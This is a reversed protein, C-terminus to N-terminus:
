KSEFKRALILSPIKLGDNLHAAVIIWFIFFRLFKSMRPQSKFIFSIPTFCPFISRIKQTNLKIIRRLVELCMFSQLVLTIQWVVQFEIWSKGSLIKLRFKCPHTQFLKLLFSSPNNGGAYTTRPFTINQCSDTHRDASTPPYGMEPRAPPPYGMGPRPLPPTGWGLDPWPHPTGWGLDPWPPPYGMGPRAPPYGMGPRALPYPYGMEPRAPSPPVRDWTQIPYGGLGPIPYGGSKPHPVGWVQSPTGGGSRPHTGGLCPIPVGWVHSPYGGWVQSPRGGGWCLLCKCRPLRYAEQM